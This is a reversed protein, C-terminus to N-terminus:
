EMKSQKSRHTVSSSPEEQLEHELGTCPLTFKASMDEQELETYSTFLKAYEPRRTAFSYFQDYDVKGTKERDIKDYISSTEFDQGFVSKLVQDLEESSVFGDCDRDFVKFALKVTKETVAAQSVLSMGIVYERFDIFGNGNRDYLDFLEQLENTIPLKLYQSFEEIGMLGDNCSQSIEAFEDLLERMGDIDMGLKKSLKSFEILGSELPLNRSKAHYMLRCDEFTHDTIPVDLASAMVKRVNTAFLKPNEKEEGSPNYVPLYEIEFRSYLQCMTLWLLKMGGPGVMTWTYTDLENPYRIVVPQVSCGPIFAGAKFSILAQRNTCTGEPFMGLQPWNEKATARHHIDRISKQRSNADQRSVLVPEQTKLLAGILPTQANEMRSVSSPMPFSSFWALTDFYTSHPAFVLIPAENRSARRGTTKIWLFGLTFLQVRGIVGVIQFLARRWKPVPKEPYLPMGVTFLRALLWGVIILLSFLIFRIPAITVSMVFVKVTQIRSFRLGSVFPNVVPLAFSKQRPIPIDRKRTMAPFPSAAICFILIYRRRM